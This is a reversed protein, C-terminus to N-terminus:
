SQYSHKPYKPPKFHCIPVAIPLDYVIMFVIRRYSVGM